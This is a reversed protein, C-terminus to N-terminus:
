HLTGAAAGKGQGWATVGLLRLCTGHRVRCMNVLTRLSIVAEENRSLM